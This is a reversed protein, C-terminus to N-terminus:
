FKSYKCKHQILINYYCIGDFFVLGEYNFKKIKNGIWRVNKTDIYNLQALTPYLLIAKGSTCFQEEVLVEWPTPWQSPTFYDFSRPKTEIKDIYQLM